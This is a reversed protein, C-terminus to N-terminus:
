KVSPVSPERDEHTSDLRKRDTLRSCPTLEIVADDPLGPLWTAISRCDGRSCLIYPPVHPSHRLSVQPLPPLEPRYHWAGDRLVAGAPPEMGAGTGRVRAEDLRLADGELRYDEEWALHEISHTWRLTVADDLSAVLLGFVLCIGKM